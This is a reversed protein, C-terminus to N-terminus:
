YICANIYEGRGQRTEKWEKLPAMMEDLAAFDHELAALTRRAEKVADFNVLLSLLAAAATSCGLIFAFWVPIGVAVCVIGVLAPITSFSLQIRRLLVRSYADSPRMPFKSVNSMHWLVQAENPINM